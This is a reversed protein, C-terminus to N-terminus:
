GITSLEQKSPKKKPGTISEQPVFGCIAQLAKQREPNSLMYAVAQDENGGIAEGAWFISGGVNQLKNLTVAKRILARSQRDPANHYAFFGEPDKDAFEAIINSKVTPNDNFVGLLIAMDDLDQGELEFAAKMADNRRKRRSLELGADKVPDLKKFIISNGEMFNPSGECAPHNELYESLLMRVEQDNKLVTIKQDRRAEHIRLGTSWYLEYNRYQGNGNKSSVARFTNGSLDQYSTFGWSGPIPIILAFKVKDPQNITKM